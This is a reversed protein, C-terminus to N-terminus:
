VLTWNSVGDSILVMADGQRGTSAPNLTQTAALGVTDAGAAAITITGTSNNVVWIMKNLNSSAAPLTVTFTGSTAVVLDNAVATYGSVKAKYVPSVSGGGANAIVFATTALQTTNTALAATPATPTGTLAPSALPADLAQAAAVFATTALQTTNTGPAATPAAPTGTLTPSALPAKLADAAVRAATETTLGTGGTDLTAALANINAEFALREANNWISGTTGSGDDDIVTTHTLTPAAM